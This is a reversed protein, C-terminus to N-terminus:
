TYMIYVINLSSPGNLDMHDYCIISDLLILGISIQSNRKIQHSWKTPEYMKNISVSMINKAQNNKKGKQGQKQDFWHGIDM